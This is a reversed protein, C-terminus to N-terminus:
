RGEEERPPPWPRHLSGVAQGEALGTASPRSAWPAVPHGGALAAPRAAVTRITSRNMAVGRNQPREGKHRNRAPRASRRHEPSDRRELPRGRDGATPVCWGCRRRPCSCPSWTRGGERRPQIAAGAARGCSAVRGPSSSSTTSSRAPRCTACPSPAARTIHRGQRVPGQRRGLDRRPSSTVSRATPTPPPRHLAGATPNDSRRSRAPM